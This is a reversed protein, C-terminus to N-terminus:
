EWKLLKAISKTHWNSELLKDIYEICEEKTADEMEKEPHNVMVYEGGLIYRHKMSKQYIGDRLSEYSKPINALDKNEIINNYYVETIFIVANQMNMRANNGLM